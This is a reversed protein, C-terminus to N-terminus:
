TFHSRLQAENPEHMIYGYNKKVRCSMGSGAAGLFYIFIFFCIYMHDMHGGEGEGKYM